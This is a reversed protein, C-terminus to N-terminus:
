QPKAPALAVLATVEPTFNMERDRRLNVRVDYREGRKVEPLDAETKGFIRLKGYQRTGDQEQIFGEVELLHWPKNSVKGIGGLKNASEVIIAPM